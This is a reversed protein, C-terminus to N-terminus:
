TLQINFIVKKKVQGELRRKRHKRLMQLYDDELLELPGTQRTTKEVVHDFCLNYRGKICIYM